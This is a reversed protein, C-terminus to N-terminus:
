KKENFFAVAYMEVGRSFACKGFHANVYFFDPVGRMRMALDKIEQDYLEKNKDTLAFGNGHEKMLNTLSSPLNAVGLFELNKSNIEEKIIAKMVKEITM